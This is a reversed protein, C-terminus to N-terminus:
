TTKKEASSEIEGKKSIRQLRPVKGLVYMGRGTREGCGYNKVDATRHCNREGKTVYLKHRGVM